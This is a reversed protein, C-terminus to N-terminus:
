LHTFRVEVQLANWAATVPDDNNRTVHKNVQTRMETKLNEGLDDRFAVALAGASIQLIVVIGLLIAFQDLCSITHTLKTGPLLTWQLLKKKLAAQLKHGM